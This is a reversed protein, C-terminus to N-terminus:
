PANTLNAYEETWLLSVYLLSNINDNQLMLSGGSPLIIGPQLVLSPATTIGVFGLDVNKFTSQGHYFEAVPSGPTGVKRWVSAKQTKTGLTWTSDISLRVIGFAVVCSVWIQEIRVIIGSDNPNLLQFSSYEAAIPAAHNGAFAPRREIAEDVLTVPVITEDLVPQFRGKLGFRTVLAQGFTYTNIQKPV